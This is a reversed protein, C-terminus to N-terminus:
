TATFGQDTDRDRLRKRARKAERRVEEDRDRTAGVLIEVAWDDEMM